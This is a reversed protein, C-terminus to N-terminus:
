GRKTARKTKDRVPRKNAPKRGRKARDDLAKLPAAKTAASPNSHGNRISRMARTSIGIEEALTKCPITRLEPVIETKWPYLEPNRYIASAESWDHVLGSQVNELRNTEKGVFLVEGVSIKRRQLL